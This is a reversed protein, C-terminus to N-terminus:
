GRIFSIRERCTFYQNDVLKFNCTSVLGPGLAFEYSFSGDESFPVNTLKQADDSVTMFSKIGNAGGYVKGTITVKHGDSPLIVQGHTTHITITPPDPPNLWSELDCGATVLSFCFIACLSVSKLYKKHLM